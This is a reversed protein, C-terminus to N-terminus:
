RSGRDGSTNGLEEAKSKSEAESRRIGLKARHHPNGLKMDLRWAWSEVLCKRGEPESKM